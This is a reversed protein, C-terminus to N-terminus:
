SQWVPPRADVFTSPLMSRPEALIHAPPNPKEWDDYFQGATMESPACPAVRCSIIVTCTRSPPDSM